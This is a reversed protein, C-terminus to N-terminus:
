MGNTRLHNINQIEDETLGKAQEDILGQGERLGGELREKNMM